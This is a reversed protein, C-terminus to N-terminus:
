EARLALAPDLRTARLAPVYCALAAVLMLLVPVSAYTVPDLPGVVFLQAQLLRCAFGAAIVGLVMGALAPRLGELLVLRRVDSATAGLAMRVGIEQRRQSVAYSVLGYLGITALLLALGAFAGYLMMGFRRDSTSDGIVDDMSQVRYIPLNPDLKRIESRASAVAAAPEAAVHLIATVGRSSNDLLPQYFMPEPKGSITPRVDAAVGIVEYRPVPQKQLRAAQVEYDYFIRKGIPDENPFVTRAMTESIVISGTRPHQGDFGTGDRETFTRGKLLAVGAAAFYAPDVSQEMAVLFKGSEFPRGEVYYFLFNCAGALPTCSTLGASQVGPAQRLRDGLQGLLVSRQANTRYDPGPLSFSLAITHDLRVGPQVQRLLYLSRLLLGSAVLLVVSLAVETAVLTNRFRGHARAATASRTADKLTESLEMRSVRIAPFVGVAVGAVLAAGFAFLFVLPDLPLKGDPLIASAGPAHAAVTGSISFALLLGLAGGAMALLVSETVLQRIIRGRGAGLCARLGIERTRGMARTLVLNAINVCAILLVCTVAGLLIMLPVRVDEVLHAHLPIATAGSGTAEEPHANRYRASIGDLEAGAQQVSTGPRIRGIV